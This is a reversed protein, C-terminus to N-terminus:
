AAALDAARQGALGPPAAAIPPRAAIVVLTDLLQDYDPSRLEQLLASRAERAQDDLRHLLQEVGVADQEPLMDATAKLRDALVDTDRAAGAKAGLQRLRGRVESAPEPDLLPAFTRLDSRLRRTAVRFQHVDEPDEGLRVGPDHRLIQTVSRSTAYRILTSVTEDAGIPPVVVDPPGSAPQGLARLVKPIPPEARCGAAVLRGIAARM